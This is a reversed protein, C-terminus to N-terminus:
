YGYSANIDAVNKSGDERFLCDVIEDDEDNNQDRVPANAAVTMVKRKKAPAERTPSTQYKEPSKKPAAPKVKGEIRDADEPSIVRIMRLIHLKEKEKDEREKEVSALTDAEIKKELGAM